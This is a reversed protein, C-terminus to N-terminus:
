EDSEQNYALYIELEVVPEYKILCILAAMAPELMNIGNRLVAPLRGAISDKKVLFM